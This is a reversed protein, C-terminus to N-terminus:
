RNYADTGSRSARASATSADPLHSQAGSYAVTAGRSAQCQQPNNACLTQGASCENGCISCDAAPNGGLSVCLACGPDPAGCQVNGDRFACACCTCATAPASPCAAQGLAINVAGILQAITVTGQPGCFCEGTTDCQANAIGAAFLLASVVSMARTRAIM